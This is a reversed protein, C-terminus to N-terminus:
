TITTKSFSSTSFILFMVSTLKTGFTIISLLLNHIIIIGKNFLSESQKHVSVQCITNQSYAKFDSHSIFYFNTFELSESNIQLKVCTSVSKRYFQSLRHWSVRTHYAIRCGVQTRMFSKEGPWGQATPPLARFLVQLLKRSRKDLVQMHETNNEKTLALALRWRFTNKKNTTTTKKKCSTDSKRESALGDAWRDCTQRRM